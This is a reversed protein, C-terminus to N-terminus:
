DVALVIMVADFMNHHVFVTSCPSSPSPLCMQRLDVAHTRSTGKHCPHLPPPLTSISLIKQRKKKPQSINKYTKEM